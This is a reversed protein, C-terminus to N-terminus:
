FKSRLAAQETKSVNVCKGHVSCSRVSLGLSIFQEVHVVTNEESRSVEPGLSQDTIDVLHMFFTYM